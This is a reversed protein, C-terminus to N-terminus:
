LVRCLGQLGWGVCRLTSGSRCLPLLLPPLRMIWGACCARLAQLETYPLLRGEDCDRDILM